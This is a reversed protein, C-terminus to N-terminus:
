FYEILDSVSKEVQNILNRQSNLNMQSMEILKGTDINYINSKQQMLLYNLQSNSIQTKIHNQPLLPTQNSGVYSSNQNSIMVHNSQSKNSNKQTHSIDVDRTVVINSSQTPLKSKQGLLNSIISLQSNALEKGMLNVNILPPRNPINLPPPLM